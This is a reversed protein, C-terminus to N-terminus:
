VKRQFNARTKKLWHRLGFPLSYYFSKIIVKRFLHSKYYSRFFFDSYAITKSGDAEYHYLGATQQCVSWILDSQAPKLEKKWLGVKSPNIKETLSKMAATLRKKDSENATQLHSNFETATLEHFNLMRSDFDVNLFRCIRQMEAQTNQVMDEYKVHLVRSQDIRKLKRHIMSFIFDWTKAFFYLDRVKNMSLFFKRNLYATDRPDRTLVIFKCDPYFRNLQHIHYHYQLQKDVVMTINDKPKGPRFALYTLKVANTANLIARHETLIKRLAEKGEFQLDLHKSQYFYMDECYRDITEDNWDSVHEYRQYLFYAFQEEIASLIQPHSGLLSSLLTSGSRSTSLIFNITIKEPEQM